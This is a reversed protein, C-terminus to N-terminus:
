EPFEARIAKLMDAFTANEPVIDPPFGLSELRKSTPVGIAAIKATRLYGDGREKGFEREVASVFAEASKPSTFALADFRGRKLTMLMHLLANSMGFDVLRYSAVDVLDAGAEWLGDSLM